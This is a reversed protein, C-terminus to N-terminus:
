CPVSRVLRAVWVRITNCPIPQVHPCVCVCVCVRARARARWMHGHCVTYLVAMCWRALPGSHVSDQARVRVDCVCTVRLFVCTRVQEM